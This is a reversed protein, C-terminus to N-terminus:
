SPGSTASGGPETPAFSPKGEPATAHESPLILQPAEYGQCPKVVLSGTHTM